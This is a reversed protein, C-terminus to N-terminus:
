MNCLAVQWALSTHYLSDFESCSLPFVIAVLDTGTLQVACHRAKRVLDSLANLYPYINRPPTSSLYIWEIISVATDTRPVFLAATPTHPTALLVLRLPRVETLRDVFQQSLVANIQRICAIHEETIAIVAGPARAGRLLEFLLQLM